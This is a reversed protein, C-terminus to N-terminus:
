RPEEPRVPTPGLGLVKIEYANTKNPRAAIERGKATLVGRDVWGNLTCQFATALAASQDSLSYVAAAYTMRELNRLFEHQLATPDAM